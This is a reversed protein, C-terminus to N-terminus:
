LVDRDANARRETRYRAPPMGLKKKFVGFFYEVSSYGSQLAIEKIPLESSVLLDCAHKLRLKNLYDCFGTSTVRRFLNGFYNPTLGQSRAVDEISISERYHAHLYVIASHISSVVNGSAGGEGQRLLLVILRSILARRSLQTLPDNKEAERLLSRCLVCAEAWEEGSLRACVAGMELLEECSRDLFGKAFAVNLIAGESHPVYTHFDCLSMLWVDGERVSRCVGNFRHEGEGSLLIELEFYEHWHLPYRREKGIRHLAIRCAQDLREVYRDSFTKEKM